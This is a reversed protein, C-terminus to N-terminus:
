STALDPMVGLQILVAALNFYDVKRAVLGERFTFFSAFVVSYARGTAPIGAMSARHTGSMTLEVAAGHLTIQVRHPQVHFDPSATAIEAVFARLEQHGRVRRDLARDLYEGDETFVSAVADADLANIAAYYADLLAYGAALDAVGATFDDLDSTCIVDM